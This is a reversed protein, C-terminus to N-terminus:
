DRKKRKVGLIVSIIAILFAALLTKWFGGLV